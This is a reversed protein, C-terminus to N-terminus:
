RRHHHQRLLHRVAPPGQGCNRFTRAGMAFGGDSRIVSTATTGTGNAPSPPSRRSAATVPERSAHGTPRPQRGRLRLRHQGRRPDRRPRRRPSSAARRDARAMTPIQDQGEHRDNRRSAPRRIIVCPPDLRAAACPPSYPQGPVYQNWQATTVPDGSSACVRSILTSADIDWTSFGGDGGTTEAVYGAARRAQQSVGILTSGAPATLEGITVPAHVDSIDWLHINRDSDASALINGEPSFALTLQPATTGSLAILPTPPGSSPVSWLRIVGNTGGAALIPAVPDLATATARAIASALHTAQWPRRPDVRTWLATQSQEGVIQEDATDAVM